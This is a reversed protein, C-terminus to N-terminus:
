FNRGRTWVDARNTLLLEVLVSYGHKAAVNTPISGDDSLINKDAGHELLVQAITAWGQHCVAQLANSYKGGQANVDAGHGLLDRVIKGYGGVCAAQLANGYFGGQANVAAGEQLLLRAIEDHGGACAAQLANGHRGGQANVHAGRKLLLQVIKMHGKFCAAVLAYGHRGGQANVHAGCKLLLQVIKMHGKFCAAVLAYGHRGGQANVHAGRKLLLQVIKMHGKFCAAVLAYGYDGGKSNVRAGHDLLLQVVSEHGNLSAWQIAYTNTSDPVFVARKHVRLLFEVEQKHGNFAALNLAGMAPVSKHPMTAKWFVPFWLSFSKGSTDYLRHVRDLAEPDAALNMQSVHYSWHVASYSFFDRTNSCIRSDDCVLDEMLLYQSCIQAMQREADSLRWSYALDKNNPNSESILFERATQHILFIKGSNIFVFLGCYYRLKEGIVSSDIRAKKATRSQPSNAIGLAMAMEVTTLPRRAAVIIQLIKKATEAEADSSVRSLIKTYADNVSEPILKNIQMAKIAEETSLLNRHFEIQIHGITLHLWLYTRHEMKLLRQELQQQIDPSLREELALKKVELKVFLDIEKHIQDNEEEGKLHLHPFYRFHSQIHDYPRSTVLFKLCTDTDKESSSPQCHFLQIKRILRDRDIECCEDLADFICITKFSVDSSTAAIFVRWLDEVGQRLREGNREWSPMAYHLLHPRQSFLQHLVSCLAAALHNQDDNDKFFFYCITVEPSLARVYDDIISRALVSKGCGPDASVWLLDNCNSDLWRIYELSQLAWQCTGEARRPNIDKQEEYNSTKFVQHCRQQQETLARIKQEDQHRERQEYARDSNQNTSKLVDSLIVSIREEAEIRSLPIRQLLDKAYAAAVMAAFGQWEKNKHSDSYDCIGRIVLCPFTNMLGAAEMEFCLVEKEAALRDRILADKMLQNGSAILGYHIAPNDKESRNRRLVLNSADNACSVAGCNSEHSLAPRFLRDTISEPREYESRLRANTDLIINIAEILKHGKRKYQAQIGTMATRLTAPPQNLFRTHQFSQEQISKGFDYQFVGGESDRPASVVVDGLRVDHKESPVGGGIGVMLGIRVNHFTNLMNTAVNAASATGYDGGPLVAIVVNHEDMKGLTYDNTDNPSVFSPKEHEEDLFEQAAVYEVLLACIWGVTYNAPDSM